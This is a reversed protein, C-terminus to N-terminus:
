MRVDDSLASYPFDTLQFIHKVCAYVGNNDATRYGSGHVNGFVKHLSETFLIFFIPISM